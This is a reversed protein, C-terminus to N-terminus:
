VELEHEGIAITPNVTLTNKSKGKKKKKAIGATKEEYDTDEKSDACETFWYEKTFKAPIAESHSYWLEHVAQLKPDVREPNCINAVFQLLPDEKNLALWIPEFIVPDFQHSCWNLIQLPITMPKTAKSDVKYQEVWKLSKEGGGGIRSRYKNAATPSSYELRATQAYEVDRVNSFLRSTEFLPQLFLPQFFLTSAVPENTLSPAIGAKKWQLVQLEM